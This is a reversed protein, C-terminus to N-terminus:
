QRPEQRSAEDNLAALKAAAEPVASYFELVRRCRAVQEDDLEEPETRLISEALDLWPRLPERVVARSAIPTMDPAPNLYLLKQPQGKEARFCAPLRTLRVASMCGVDAGLTIVIPKIEDIWEDWQMKSKADVRVLVHVSKGGSTYIAAIRLPLQVAMAVWDKARAKDSELVLYRWSTVCEHFRRSWHPDDGSAVDEMWRWEGSVPNCLYWIGQSGRGDFDNGRDEFPVATKEYLAAPM